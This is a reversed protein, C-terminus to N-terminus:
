QLVEDEKHRDYISAELDSIKSSVNVKSTYNDSEIHTAKDFIELNMQSSDDDINLSKHSDVIYLLSLSEKIEINKQVLNSLNGVDDKLQAYITAIGFPFDSFKVIGVLKDDKVSFVYDHRIGNQDIIYVEKYDGIRESSQIIIENELDRTTYSPSYIEITPPTRDFEIVVYSPM